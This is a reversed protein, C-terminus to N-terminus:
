EIQGYGHLLHQAAGGRVLPSSSEILHFGAGDPEHRAEPGYCRVGVRPLANRSSHQRHGM